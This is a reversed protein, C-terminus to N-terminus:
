KKVNLVGKPVAIAEEVSWGRSLRSLVAGCDVDNELPLEKIPIKKGEFEVITRKRNGRDYTFEQYKGRTTYYLNDLSCNTPDNDKYLIIINKTLKFDTFHEIVLRALMFDKTKNNISLKVELYGQRNVKPKLKKITHTNNYNMSRAKGTNSVQYKGKYGAVDIWVEKM